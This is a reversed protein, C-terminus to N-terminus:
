LGGGDSGGERKARQVSGYLFAGGAAMLVLPWYRQMSALRLWGLNNLLLLAGVGILAAGWAPSETTDEEAVGLGGAHRANIATATRWADVLNYFYTFAILFAFFPNAEATLYISGAWAFFFVMAKAPQGNYIQGIGPFLSLVLALIPSKPTAPAVAPMPLAAYGAQPDAPTTTMSREKTEDPGAMAAPRDDDFAM